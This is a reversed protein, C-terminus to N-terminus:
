LLLPGSEVFVLNPWMWMKNYIMRLVKFCMKEIEQTIELYEIIKNKGFVGLLKLFPKTGFDQNITHKFPSKDVWGRFFDILDELLTWSVELKSLDWGLVERSFNWHFFLNNM